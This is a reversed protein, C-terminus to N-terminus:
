VNGYDDYRQYNITQKDRINETATSITIIPEDKTGFSVDAAKYNVIDSVLTQGHKDFGTNVIDKASTFIWRKDEEKTGDYYESYITQRLVNGYEDYNDGTVTYTKDIAEAEVPVIDSIDGVGSLNCDDYKTVISSSVNGLASIGFNEIMKMDLLEFTGSETGDDNLIPTYTAVYQTGAVGNEYGLSRTEQVDLTMNGPVFTIKQVADMTVAGSDYTYTQQSMINHEGDYDRNTMVQFNVDHLVSNNAGTRQTKM